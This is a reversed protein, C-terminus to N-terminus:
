PCYLASTGSSILNFYVRRRSDTIRENTVYEAHSQLTRPSSPFGLPEVLIPLSFSSILSLSFSFSKGILSLRIFYHDALSSGVGSSAPEFGARAGM